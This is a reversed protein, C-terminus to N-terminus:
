GPPGAGGIRVRLAKASPLTTNGDLFVSLLLTYEGPPVRDPLRIVFRGDDRWRMKDVDLVKGDPAVLLYRSVVLLGLTGRMTTRTLPEKTTVYSRGGKVTLDADAGVIVEEGIQAATELTARPPHVFRDYTGFGLPYTIERVAQLTVSEPGWAKLRYPGNTVLFHGNREAFERLSRWRAAATDAGVFGKLADPRYREAEFQRVLGFLKVKQAEDRVLDLWPVNRRAAEGESFAAYGRRVAEEMLVLLHWPVTSWPPALAAVQGEDGAVNRLYVEVVPTEQLVDMGEAVAHKTREVRVVKLGALREAIATFAAAVRPEHMAENTGTRTGWRAAFVYPYLLDAVEMKTGDEFPSALVEYVVKASSFVRSGVPQLTGTGPQPLLADAPLRIGGSRGEVRNVSSQVRNPMWSANFPFHIMAPDGVAFWVMRGMADSFGAVPNWAAGAAAPVALKLKGNWPYEKLKVTRFFVPSNLGSQTDYAVNEIGAPYAEDIFEEREAYGMVARRCGEGLAAILRRELNVREALGITEGRILHDYAEDAGARSAGDVHPSLVRYAQLWGEKEQPSVPWGNVRLASSSALEDLPVEELFVDADEAPGGWRANVIAEALPGKAGVKLSAGAEAAAGIAAMTAEIRDLHHLYDPHFPTIPYPHFVFGAIRADRLARAIGGAVECRRGTAAGISLVLLSGLSRVSHVHAPAPGDFSPVAGVYAHLTEERFRRAAAAPDLAEIRIEDPYYSPFHGVSHGAGSQGSAVFLAITLLVGAARPARGGARTGRAGPRDVGRYM